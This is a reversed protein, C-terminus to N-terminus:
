SIHPFIGQYYRIIETIRFAEALLKAGLWVLGDWFRGFGNKWARAASPPEEVKKGPLQDQAIPLIKATTDCHFGTLLCALSALTLLTHFWPPVGGMSGQKLLHTPIYGSLVQYNRYNQFGRCAMRCWALGFGELIKGVWEKLGRAASSPEKGKKEPLQDQAVPLTWAAM